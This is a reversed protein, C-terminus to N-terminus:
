WEWLGSAEGGYEWGVDRQWGRTVYEKSLGRWPEFPLHDMLAIPLAPTLWAKTVDPHAWQWETFGFYAYASEPNGPFKERYFSKVKDVDPLPHRTFASRRFLGIGGIHDIPQSTLRYPVHRMSEPWKSLEGYAEIGLLDIGPQHTLSWHAVDLWGPPLLTDNDIKAILPAPTWKPWEPGGFHIMEDLVAVPSKLKSNVVRHHPCPLPKDGMLAIYFLHGLTETDCDDAYVHFSNVLAWNTNDILAELTVRTFELRNHVLYLLDVM